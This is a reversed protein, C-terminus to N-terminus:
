QGAATPGGDFLEHDLVEAGCVPVCVQPSPDTCCTCVACRMGAGCDADSSCANTASCSIDLGCFGGQDTGTYCVGSGGCCSFAYSGCCKGETCENVKTFTSASSITPQGDKFGAVIWYCTNDESILDFWGSNMSFGPQLILFSAPVYGAFGPVTYHFVSYFLFVNYEMDPTWAFNPPETLEAGNPPSNLVIQANVACPVTFLLVTSILLTKYIRNM